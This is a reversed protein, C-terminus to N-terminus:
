DGEIIGDLESILRQLNEKLDDDSQISAKGLISELEGHIEGLLAQQRLFRKVLGLKDEYDAMQNKARHFADHVGQRTVGLIEAIETMSYDDNYYYDLITKQRESLLEGYFDFCFQEFLKESMTIKRTKAKEEMM